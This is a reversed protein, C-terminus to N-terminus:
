VRHRDFGESFFGSILTILFLGFVLPMGRALILGKGFNGLMGRWTTRKQRSIAQYNKEPMFTALFIGLLIFLSASLLIPGNIRVTAIVISIPIGILFFLQELQYGRMLVLDPSRDKLEDTLWAMDAGSIFTAGIGWVVQAGLVIWFVPFIGELFFGIGMLLLGFVISWKRSHFDAVIGTPIEFLFCSLELVTGILVLQLPNLKVMEIHYISFVTVVLSFFLGWGSKYIYFILDAKIKPLLMHNSGYADM